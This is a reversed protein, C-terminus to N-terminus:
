ANSQPADDDDAEADGTEKPADTPEERCSAERPGFQPFRFRADSPDDQYTPM